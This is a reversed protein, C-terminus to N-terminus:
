GVNSQAITFTCPYRSPTLTLNLGTRTSLHSIISVKQLFLERFGSKRPKKESRPVTPATVAAAAPFSPLNIPQKTPQRGVSSAITPASTSTPYSATLSSSESDKMRPRNDDGPKSLASNSDESGADMAQTSNHTNSSMMLLYYIIRQIFYSTIRTKAIYQKTKQLPPSLIIIRHIM